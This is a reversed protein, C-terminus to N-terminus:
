NISIQISVGHQHQDLHAGIHCSSVLLFMRSQTKSCFRSNITQPFMLIISKRICSSNQYGFKWFYTVKKVLVVAREATLHQM